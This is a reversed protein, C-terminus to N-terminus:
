FSVSGLQITAFLDGTGGYTTKFGQHYEVGLNLPIHLFVETTLRLGAGTSPLVLNSATGPFYAAEAFTLAYLNDLFIPNTGWGRFIRLLPFKFDLSGVAVSRSYLLAGPYGRVPVSGFVSSLPTTILEPTRGETVANAPGYNPDFSSTWLAKFSPNLVAHDVVRIYENEKFVGKLVSQGSDFYIRSGLVASRGEEPSIGLRSNEANTYLLSIDTAPVYRTKSVLDGDDPNFGKLYSFDRSASVGLTPVLTSYTFQFPFSILASFDTSRDYTTVAENVIKFSTVRDSTEATLTPGLSRNSYSALWDLKPIGSNYGAGLIYSHRDTADFGSVEGLTYVGGPFFIPLLFWQRPWISPFISYDTVAYRTAAAHNDSLTDAQPAPPPALTLQAAPYATKLTAGGVQAVSWGSSHYHTAYLEGQPGFNPFSLGTTVNTVMEPAGGTISLRHLNEVGTLDSIYYIAGDLAIAPYRNFKGNSVLERSKGAEIDWAELEESVHGIRHISYIVSRGDRSFKPTAVRDYKQTAAELKHIEDLKLRGNPEHGLKAIALKTTADETLTFTIWQGDRSVDPDRARLAESIWYTHDRALDYAALDSWEYYNHHRHLSSYVLTKSDPTFASTAGFIKDDIRQAPKTEGKGLDMLYLGSRRDPTTTAYALWKGDPSPTPGQTDLGDSPTLDRLETVPQSRIRALQKGTRERTEALWEKWFQYWDKGTINELNGNIFFPIRDSSRLSMLGLADEGTKLDSRRDASLGDRVPEHAVQNMLQYGFLYATEGAPNYPNSGNVKDLTVFKSTDLVKEDVAARLVMEYYPSRGRGSHTFRTEMYVALGELMWSPWISNPLLVDGFLFRLGRFIGDTADMNLYHTYEHIALLRLWDDYYATSFFPDPPTVYFIMGLRGLPSTLGNAADANDIVLVQVKTRSEWHLRPSLFTHAEELYNASKQATDELEAPFSLRFHETEITKWSWYPSLGLQDGIIAARASLATLSSGALSATLFGSFLAVARWKSRM